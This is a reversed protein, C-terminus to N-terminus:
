LNKKYSETIDEIQENESVLFINLPVKSDIIFRKSKLILDRYVQIDPLVISLIIKKSNEGDYTSYNYICQALADSFYHTAQLKTPTSKEQGKKDEQQYYKSPYGKVEILELYLSNEAIIDIGKAKINLSNDKRISYNKNKLYKVFIKSINGEYFWDLTHDYNIQEDM